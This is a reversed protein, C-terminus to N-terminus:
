PANLNKAFDAFGDKNVLHIAIADQGRDPQIPEDRKMSKRKGTRSPKPFAPATLRRIDTKANAPATAAHAPGAASPGEGVGVAVGAGVWAAGASEATPPARETDSSVSSKRN